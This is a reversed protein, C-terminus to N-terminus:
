QINKNRLEQGFGLVTLPRAILKGLKQRHVPEQCAIYNVVSFKHAGIRMRYRTHCKRIINQPFLGRYPSDHATNSEPSHLFAGFKCFNWYNNRMPSCRKQFFKFFTALYQQFIKIQVTSFKVRLQRAHKSFDHYSPCIVWQPKWFSPNQGNIPPRVILGEAVNM